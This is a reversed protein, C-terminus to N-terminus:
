EGTVRTEFSSYIGLINHYRADIHQVERLNGERAAAQVSSDGWAVLGLVSSSKSRGTNRGLRATGEESVIDIPLTHDNYWTGIPPQVPARYGACASLLLAAAIIAILKSAM